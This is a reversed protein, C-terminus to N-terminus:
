GWVWSIRTRKATKPAKALPKAITDGRGGGGGVVVEIL